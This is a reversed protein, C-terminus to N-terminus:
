KMKISKVMPTVIPDYFKTQTDPYFINGAVNRGDESVIWWRWTIVKYGDGSDHFHRM